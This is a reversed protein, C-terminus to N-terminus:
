IGLARKLETIQTNWLEIVDKKENKDAFDTIILAVDGTLEDINIRFEFFYKDSDDKVWKFRIYKNEKKGVIKAEYPLDDWIFIFYDNHINVDDAFWESLGSPTSLRSFLVKPSTHFTYELEIKEKMTFFLIFTKAIYLFFHYYIININFEMLINYEFIRLM